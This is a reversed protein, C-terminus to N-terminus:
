LKFLLKRNNGLGFDFEQLKLGTEIVFDFCYDADIKKLEQKGRIGYWRIIFKDFFDEKLDIGNKPYKGHYFIENPTVSLFKIYKRYDMGLILPKLANNIRKIAQAIEEIDEHSYFPKLSFGRGVVNFISAGYIPKSSEYDLLLVKYAVAIHEIADKFKEENILKQARKLIKKVNENDILDILSIEDFKIGFILPTNEDLFLRTTIRLSEIEGEEIPIGQHKFTKRADNLRKISSKQSLEGKELKQNIINFYDLIYIKESVATDLKEAALILFLEVCDHFM